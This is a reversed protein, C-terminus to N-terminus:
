RDRVVKKSKPASKKSKPTSKTKKPGEKSSKPKSCDGGAEAKQSQNSENMNEDGRAKKCKLCIKKTFAHDKWCLVTCLCFPHVFSCKWSYPCTEGDKVAACIDSIVDKCNFCVRTSMPKWEKKMETKQAKKCDICTKPVNAHDKWCHVETCSCFPHVYCCTWNFPCTEGAQVTACRTSIITECRDCVRKQKSPIAPGFFFGDDDKGVRKSVFVLLKVDHKTAPATFDTLHIRELLLRARDYSSGCCLHCHAVCPKSELLTAFADFDHTKSKKWLSRLFLIFDVTVRNAVRDTFPAFLKMFVDRSSLFVKKLRASQGKLDFSLDPNFDAHLFLEDLSKVGYAALWPAPDEPDFPAPKSITLNEFFEELNDKKSCSLQAM